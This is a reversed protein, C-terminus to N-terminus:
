KIGYRMDIDKCFTPTLKLHKLKPLIDSLSKWRRKIFLLNRQFLQIDSAVSTARVTLKITKLQPLKQLLFVVDSHAKCYVFDPHNRWVSKNFDKCVLTLGKIKKLYDYEKSQQYHSYPSNVLLYSLVLDLIKAEPFISSM